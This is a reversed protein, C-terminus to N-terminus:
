DRLHQAAPPKHNAVAFRRNTVPCQVNSIKARFASNQKCFDCVCEIFCPTFRTKNQLFLKQCFYLAKDFM